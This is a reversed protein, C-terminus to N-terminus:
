GYIHLLATNLDYGKPVDDNNVGDKAGSICM